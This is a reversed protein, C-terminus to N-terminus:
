PFVCHKEMGKAKNPTLDLVLQMVNAVPRVLSSVHYIYTYKICSYYHRGIYNHPYLRVDLVESSLFISIYIYLNYM